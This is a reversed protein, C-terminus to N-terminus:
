NKHPLNNDNFLKIKLEEIKAKEEDTISSHNMAEWKKLQEIKILRDLEDRDEERKMKKAESWKSFCYWLVRVVTFVVFLIHFILNNRGSLLQDAIAGAEIASIQVEVPLYTNLTDKIQEIM